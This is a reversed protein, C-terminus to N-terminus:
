TIDNVVPLKWVLYKPKKQFLGAGISSRSRIDINISFDTIILLTQAASTRYFTATVSIIWIGNNAVNYCPGTQTYVYFTVRHKTIEPDFINDREGDFTNTAPKLIINWELLFPLLKGRVYFYLGM